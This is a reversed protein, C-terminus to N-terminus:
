FDGFNKLFLDRAGLCQFLSVVADLLEKTKEDSAGSLKKIFLDNCYEAICNPTKNIENM